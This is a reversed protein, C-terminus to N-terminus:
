RDAASAPQRETDTGVEQAAGRPRRAGAKGIAHDLLRRLAPARLREITEAAEAAATRGESSDAGLVRVIIIQAQLVQLYSWSDRLARLGARFGAVAAAKDGELGALAASLVSHAGTAALGRWAEPPEEELTRRLEGVDGLHVAAAGSLWARDPANSEGTALRAEGLYDDYRGAM